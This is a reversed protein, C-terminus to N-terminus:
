LEYGGDISRRPQINRAWRRTQSFGAFSFNYNFTILVFSDLSEDFEQDEEEQDQDQQITKGPWMKLIFMAKPNRWFERIPLLEQTWDCEIENAKNGSVIKM